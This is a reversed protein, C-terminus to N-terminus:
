LNFPSAVNNTTIVIRKDEVHIFDAIINSKIGKLAHNINIIHMSLNKLYWKAVENNMPIIVQKQLPGKTTMNLCSKLKDNTENIIKQVQDIKENWLHPFSEKIKLTDLTINSFSNKFYKSIENVEKPSKAPILSSLSSVFTPKATEKGKISAQPRSVQPSFKLKVKNRFSMNTKDIFLSDWHSEYIASM